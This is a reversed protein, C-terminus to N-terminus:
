KRTKKKIIKRLHELGIKKKTLYENEKKAKALEILLYKIEKRLKDREKM